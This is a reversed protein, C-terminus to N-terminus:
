ENYKYDKNEDYESDNRFSKISERISDLENSQVRKDHCHLNLYSEFKLLIELLSTEQSRTM